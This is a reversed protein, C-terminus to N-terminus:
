RLVSMPMTMRVMVVVVIEGFLLPRPARSVATPTTTMTTFYFDYYDYNSSLECTTRM